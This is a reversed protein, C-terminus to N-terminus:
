GIKKCSRSIHFKESTETLIMKHLVEDLVLTSTVGKIAGNEIDKLIRYSGEGFNPHDFIEYLFINADIFVTKGTSIRSLGREFGM